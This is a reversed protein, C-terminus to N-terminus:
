KTVVDRHMPALKALLQNQIPTAIANRQMAIQLDEVLAYFQGSTINLGDHIETMSKGTYTCPGGSVYCFQEALKLKLHPIDADKLSNGVREDALLLSMFTEVIRDIGTREGLGRFTSDNHADTRGDSNSVIPADTRAGTRSDTRSDTACAGLTLATILIAYIRWNM